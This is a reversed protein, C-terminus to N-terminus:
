EFLRKEIRQLRKEMMDLRKDRQERLIVYRYALYVIFITFGTSIAPLFAGQIVGVAMVLIIVLILLIKLNEPERPGTTRSSADETGTKLNNNEDGRKVYYLANPPWDETVRRRVAGIQVLHKLKRSIKPPSATVQGKLSDVIETFRMPDRGELVSIIKRDTDDLTPV